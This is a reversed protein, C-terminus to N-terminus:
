NGERYIMKDLFYHQTYKLFGMLNSKDNNTKDGDIHHTQLKFKKYLKFGYEISPILNKNKADIICLLQHLNCLNHRISPIKCNRKVRLVKYGRNNQFVSYYQIDHQQLIDAENRSIEINEM